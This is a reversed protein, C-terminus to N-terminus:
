RQANTHIHTALIHQHLGPVYCLLVRVDSKARPAVGLHALACSSQHSPPFVEVSNVIRRGNHKNELNAGERGEINSTNFFRRVISMIFTVTIEGPPPDGTIVMSSFWISYSHLPTSQNISTQPPQLYVEQVLM